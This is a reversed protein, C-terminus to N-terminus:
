KELLKHRIDDPPINMLVVLQQVVQSFIPAAVESGWISSTPKEVWIYVLFQPDDVPGWGVFSANTLYETYGYPTPIEGTGTKGAVRYGPVLADSAESELSRALMETITHAAEASIPQSAINYGIQHQVGNSIMAQVIHPTMIKGDNALASTASAMQLPTASVGQGFANTGLDAEYWDEDGPTKLRGTVEGALDVGTSRGIGYKRMYNYFDHAGIQTAVWAHCTNLSHALCDVMDVPGWAGLNWNYIKAGGLEFIGTDVFETDPEIVGLDLGAAMTLVKYVSGPEYAQSVGRDFPTQDPFIENLLWYKNLDMRPTTAMALIEGTKPDLVVVTASEAGNRKKAKDVVGEMAAQIERDITLVLSVGQPTDPLDVVQNPNTTVWVDLTKGSLMEDYYGEVGYFGDGAQNVFGILNSGLSKEPYFRQLYPRYVLGSLSPTDPDRRGKYTERMKSSLMKLQEVQEKPVGKKLPRYVANRSYEISAIDLIENYDAGTILSMATAISKSNDVDRLEVGVEYVTENSAFPHGYRDYIEGRAPELLLNYSEYREQEAEIIQKNAEDTQIRLLQFTIFVPLISLAIGMFTFRWLHEHNM